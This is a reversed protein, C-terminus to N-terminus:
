CDAEEYARRESADPKRASIIRIIEDGDEQRVTHAVVLLVPGELAGVTQWRAEGREVRDQVSLHLPDEFVLVATEFSIGHKAQNDRNKREDWEFRMVAGPKITTVTSYMCKRVNAVPAIVIVGM